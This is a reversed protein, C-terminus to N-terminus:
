DPAMLDDTHTPGKNVRSASGANHTTNSHTSATSLKKLTASQTASGSGLAVQPIVADEYGKLQLRIAVTGAGRPLDLTTDTKKAQDKGDIWIEAGPPISNITVHALEVAASSGSGSGSTQSGSGAALGSTPSASGVASGSGAVIAASGGSGSGTTATASGGVPKAAATASGSAITSSGSGSAAATGPDAAESKHGGKIVVVVAVLAAGVVAAGGLMFGTKRRNAEVQGAAAGLTTPVPSAISGHSSLSGPTPTAVVGTIRVPSSIPTPTTLRIHPMPAASPMLQYRLFGGIGGHSEVYGVPDSMARIFEDMTPYRMEPQKELAKLVVQEVHPSMMHYRSPEVPRATLHQVLIEGYGEGIFPVRGTLMEYLCIGLAYVDTRHDVNPKGECQEPSMYAPTGLVLGTRTKHSSAGGGGTLKAIGFDLLKVFDPERGRQILIINDPKLDRHVIGTRHSAALADAVQLSIMLAREPPLPSETQIVQALTVGSLYEMIFYVMRDKSSATQIVGYDVIDVINPHGIANVAKAETFFRDAVEPNSSFEPHLVKLAVKKGITPHEALYVSGMGGEGLKQTVLYNGVTQGILVDNASAQQPEM